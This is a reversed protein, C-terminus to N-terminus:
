AMLHLDNALLLAHTLDIDVLAASPPTNARIFTRTIDRRRTKTGSLELGDHFLDDAVNGKKDCKESQGRDWRRL